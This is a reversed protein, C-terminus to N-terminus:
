TPKPKIHSIIPWYVEQSSLMELPLIRSCPVIHPDKAAM